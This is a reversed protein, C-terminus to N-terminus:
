VDFRKSPLFKNPHVLEISGPMDPNFRAMSRIRKMTIEDNVVDWPIPIGFELVKLSSEGAKRIDGYMDVENNFTQHMKIVFSEYSTDKDVALTGLLNEVATPQLEEDRLALAQSRFQIPKNVVPLDYKYVVGGFDENHRLMDDPKKQVSITSEM